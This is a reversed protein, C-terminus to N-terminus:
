LNRTLFHKLDLAARKLMGAERTNDAGSRYLTGDQKQEWLWPKQPTAAAVRAREEDDVQRAKDECAKLIRGFREYEARVEKLRDQRM